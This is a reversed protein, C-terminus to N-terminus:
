AEDLRYVRCATGMFLDNQEDASYRKAMKKFANWLVTYSLSLRDVPFNSEFMCRSPGFCDIAHEFYRGLVSVFDDSTPPTDAREFGFGCWPMALGGLKMVINPCSAVERIGKEWEAFVEERRGAYPGAGLPTGLHDLVITTNPFARALDALFPLQTHYQYADFSLGMRDLESFGERFAPDAYLNPGTIGEGDDIEPSPDWIGVDRIGRFRPSAAQHAELTERIGSGFALRADGVIAGIQIRGSPEQAAETALGDIWETEGVPQLHEPGTTYGHELCQVFVAQRVDHGAADRELDPPRYHPFMESEDFFHFHPDVIPREPDIAEEVVLGLWDDRFRIGVEESM